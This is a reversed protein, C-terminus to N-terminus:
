ASNKTDQNASAVPGDPSSYFQRAWRQQVNKDAHGWWRLDDYLAGWDIAIGAGGILAVAQRLRHSLEDMDADLLVSFRAAVSESQRALRKMASALSQASGDHRRGYRSWLGSILYARRREEESFSGILSELVPFAPAYTGPEFMLSRGLTAIAGSDRESVSKLYDILSQGKM